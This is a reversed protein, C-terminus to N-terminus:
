HLIKGIIFIIVLVNLIAFFINVKSSLKVGSAVVITMFIVMAGALFDPYSSLFNTQVIPM